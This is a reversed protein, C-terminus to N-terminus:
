KRSGPCIKSSSWVGRPSNSFIACAICLGTSLCQSYGPNCPLEVCQLWLGDAASDKRAVTPNKYILAQAQTRPLLAVLSPETAIVSASRPQDDIISLEGFYDGPNIFSHGIEKGEVTMDVVQLRGALLFLLADGPGRQTGYDGKAFRRSILSREVQELTASPLGQLISINRPHADGGSIERTSAVTEPFTAAPSTSPIMAFTQCTSSHCSFEISSSLVAPRAAGGAERMSAGDVGDASCAPQGSLVRQYLMLTREAMAALSFEQEVRAQAQQGVEGCAPM